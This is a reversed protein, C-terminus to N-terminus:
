EAFLCAAVTEGIDREQIEREQIDREWIAM